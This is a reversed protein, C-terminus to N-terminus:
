NHWRFYTKLKGLARMKAENATQRAIGLLKAAQTSSYGDIVRLKICSFERETLTNRLVDDLIFDNIADSTSTDAALWKEIDDGDYNGEANRHNCHKKSLCIYQHYLSNKVYNIIDM